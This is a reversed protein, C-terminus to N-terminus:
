RAESPKRRDCRGEDGDGAIEVFGALLTHSVALFRTHIDREVQDIRTQDESHQVIAQLLESFESQAKLLLEEQTLKSM